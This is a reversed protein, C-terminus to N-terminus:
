LLTANLWTTVFQNFVVGLALFAVALITLVRNIRMRRALDLNAKRRNDSSVM